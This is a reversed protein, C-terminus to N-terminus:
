GPGCPRWRMEELGVQWAGKEKEKGVHRDCGPREPTLLCPHEAWFDGCVADVHKNGAQKRGSPCSLLHRDRKYAARVAADPLIGSKYYKGM